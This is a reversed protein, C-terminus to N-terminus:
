GGADAEDGAAVHRVERRQGRRAVLQQAAGAPVDLGVAEVPAGASRTTTPALHVHRHDARQPHEADARPLDNARGGVILPAHPGLARRGSTSAVPGAMTQACAPLTFVPANSGNSAIASRRARMARPQVDVAREAQPCPSRPAAADRPPTSRASEHAVSACLHSFTGYSEPRTNM